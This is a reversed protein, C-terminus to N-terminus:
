VQYAPLRAAGACSLVTPSGRDLGVRPGGALVASM